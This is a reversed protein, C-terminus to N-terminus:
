SDCKPLPFTPTKKVRESQESTPRRNIKLAPLIIDKRPLKSGYARQAERPADKTTEHHAGAIAPSTEKTRSATSSTASGNRRFGSSSDRTRNDLGVEHATRRPGASPLFRKPQLPPRASTPKIKTEHLIPYDSTTEDKVLEKERDKQGNEKSTGAKPEAVNNKLKQWRSEFRGSSYINKDSGRRGETFSMTKRPLSPKEADALIKQEMELLEANLADRIQKARIDTVLSESNSRRCISGGKGIVKGVAQAARSLSQVQKLGLTGRTSLTTGLREIITRELRTVERDLWLVRELKQLMRNWTPICRELLEELYNQEELADLGFADYSGSSLLSQSMGTKSSMSSRSSISPMGQFKVRRFAQSIHFLNIFTSPM